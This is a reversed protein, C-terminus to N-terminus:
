KDFIIHNEDNQLFDNIIAAFPLKKLQAANVWKYSKLTINEEMKLKVFYATIFQHSLKQTYPKSIFDLKYPHTKISDPMTKSLIHKTLSLNQPLETNPFEYLNQWVDKEIRKRVLIKCDHLVLYFIFFRNKVATKKEKVPLDYISNTAFAVCKKQLPCETCMAKKPKCVTAGLDMIAQNYLASQTKDLLQQALNAYYKKGETSDIALSNGLFRSLIRYVNGDVV